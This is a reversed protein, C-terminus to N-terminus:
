IDPHQYLAYCWQFDTFCSLISYLTASIPGPHKLDNESVHHLYPFEAPQDFIVYNLTVNYKFTRKSCKRSDGMPNKFTELINLYKQTPILLHQHFEYM